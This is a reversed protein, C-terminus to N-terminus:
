GECVGEVEPTVVPPLWATVIAAHTVCNGYPRAINPMAADLPTLDDVGNADVIEEGDDNLVRVVAVRVHRAGEPPKRPLGLRALEQLQELEDLSVSEGAALRSIVDNIFEEDTMDTAELVMPVLDSVPAYLRHVGVVFPDV